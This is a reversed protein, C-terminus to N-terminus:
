LRWINVLQWSGRKIDKKEFIFPFILNALWFRGSHGMKLYFNFLFLLRAVNRMIQNIFSLLLSKMKVKEGASVELFFFNLFPSFLQSQWLLMCRGTSPRSWADCADTYNHTCNWVHPVNDDTISWFFCHLDVKVAKPFGSCLLCFTTKEAHSM